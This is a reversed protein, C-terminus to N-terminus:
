SSIASLLLTKETQTMNPDGEIELKIRGVMFKWEPSGPDLKRLRASMNIGQPSIYDALAQEGERPTSGTLLTDRLAAVQDKLDKAKQTQGSNQAKKLSIRLQDLKMKGVILEQERNLNSQVQSQYTAVATPSMHLDLYALVKERPFRAAVTNTWFPDRIFEERMAAAAVAPTVKGLRAVENIEKTLINDDSGVEGIAGFLRSSTTEGDRGIGLDNMLGKTVNESADYKKANKTLRDIPLAELAANAVAGENDLISDLVKDGTITPSILGGFKDATLAAREAVVFAETPSLNADIAAQYADAVVDGKSQNDLAGIQRQIEAAAFKSVKKARKAERRAIGADETARLRADRAILDAGTQFQTSPLNSQAPPAVAAAIPDTPASPIGAAGAEALAEQPSRPGLISPDGLGSPGGIARLADLPDAGPLAPTPATSGLIGKATELRAAAEGGAQDYGAFRWANNMLTVAEEVSQAGELAEMLAPDEQLFFAAQAEPSVDGGTFKQMAKLRDGNWSMIGGALNKGDQWTGSANKPDFSSEHKGTAAIAALAFPNQVQASVAGMFSSETAAVAPAPSPSAAAPTAAASLTAAASPAPQGSFAARSAALEFQANGINENQRGVRFAETAAIRAEGADLRLMAATNSATSSRVQNVNAVDSFLSGLRDRMDKSPNRGKLKGSAFYASIEEKTQLGAIENFIENDVRDQQGQQYSALTSAAGKLGRDFSLGANKLIDSVGSFNPAATPNIKLVAM